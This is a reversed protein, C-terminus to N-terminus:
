QQNLRGDTYLNLNHEIARYRYELFEKVKILPTSTAKLTLQILKSMTESTNCLCYKCNHVPLPFSGDDIKDQLIQQQKSYPLSRIEKCYVQKVKIEDASLKDMTTTQIKAINVYPLGLESRVKEIRSIKPSIIKLTPSPVLRNVKNETTM